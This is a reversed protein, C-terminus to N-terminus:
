ETTSGAPWRPQLGCPLIFPRHTFRCIRNGDTSETAIHSVYMAIHHILKCTAAPLLGNSDSQQCWCLAGPTAGESTPRGAVRRPRERATRGRKARSLAPAIRTGCHPYGRGGGPSQSYYFRRDSAVSEIAALVSLSEPSHPRRSPRLPSLRAFRPMYSRIRQSSLSAKLSSRSRPLPHWLITGM